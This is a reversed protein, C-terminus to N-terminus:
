QSLRLRAIQLAINSFAGSLSTPDDPDASLAKDPSSACSELDAPVDGVDFAVVYVIIGKAKAANCIAQFRAAHYTKLPGDTPSSSGTVRKAFKEVGYAGYANVTVNLLGDTMFVIYRAPAVNGPWAQTTSGWLGTPSILRLGWIMGIDHYTRGAARFNGKTATPTSTGDLYDEFETVLAPTNYEKLTKAMANCGYLGNKGLNDNDGFYPTMASYNAGAGAGAATDSSGANANGKVFPGTYLGDSYNNRYYVVEPWLPRWRTADSSPVLDPDLDPPLSTPNFSSAGATTDREEICGQWKATAGTLRSPDPTSAGSKYSAVNYEVDTHNWLPKVTWEYTKCTSSAWIPFVRKVTGSTPWTGRAYDVTGVKRTEKAMCGARNNNPSTLTVTTATPATGGTTYIIDGNYYKGPSTNYSAADYTGSSADVSNSSADSLERSPYTWNDVLYGSSKARILAGVNVSASYPVFGYRIHAASPKNEELTERFLKVADRLQSIKSGNGGTQETSYYGTTGPVDGRAYSAMSTCGEGTKCSMSGTTDLVFMIDSDGIDLRATCTATQPMAGFGFVSMIAMPTTVTATGTVQGDSLRGTVFNRGTTSMWGTPFNNKFFSQAAAEPATELTTGTNQTMVKRGALVGADCAQQLRVKVVYLRSMDIASGALLALPITFAAMMALTNGAKDRALAGMFGSIRRKVGGGGCNSGDKMTSGRRSTETRPPLM